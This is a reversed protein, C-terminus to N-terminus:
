VVESSKWLVTGWFKYPICLILCVSEFLIMKIIFVNFIRCREIKGLSDLCQNQMSKAALLDVPTAFQRPDYNHTIYIDSKSKIIRGFM